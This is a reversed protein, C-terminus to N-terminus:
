VRVINGGQESIFGKIELSTLSASIESPEHELENSLDSRTKPSLLAALIDKELETCDSYDVTEPEATLSLADLIDTGSRVPTAGRAILTNAGKSAEDFISGPVALVTKNYDLALRATILTGSREGAEIILTADSLGAMIRNRRPFSWKTARFTPEYESLLTGGSALIDRALGVHSRPYLVSDDLGSGPVAITQLHANLAARHAIADIGLALGSVITIPASKLETILKECARRGYSSYKRAGVVTIFTHNADPLTGRIYLKKPPEPIELLTQPLRDHDIM